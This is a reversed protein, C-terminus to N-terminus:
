ATTTTEQKDPIPPLGYLANFRNKVDNTFGSEIERVLKVFEDFNLGAQLTNNAWACVTRIIMPTTPNDRLAAIEKNTKGGTAKVRDPLGAEAADAVSKLIEEWKENFQPGPNQRSYGINGGKGRSPDTDNLFATHLAVIESSSPWSQDGNLKKLWEDEVCQPLEAVWRNDRIINRYRALLKQRAIQRREKDEPKTSMLFEYGMLGKDKETLPKVAGPILPLVMYSREAFDVESMGDNVSHKAAVYFDIKRLPQQDHDMIQATLVAPTMASEIAFVTIEANPDWKVSEGFAMARRFGNTIIALHPTDKPYGVIKDVYAVTINQRVGSGGNTQREATISEVLMQFDLNNYVDASRIAANSGGYRVNRSVDFKGESTLLFDSIKLVKTKIKLESM